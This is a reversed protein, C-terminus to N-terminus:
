LRVWNWSAWIEPRLKSTGMPRKEVSVRRSRSEPKFVEPNHMLDYAIDGPLLNICKAFFRPCLQIAKGLENLPAEDFAYKFQKTPTSVDIPKMRYNRITM